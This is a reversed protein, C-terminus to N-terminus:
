QTHRYLRVHRALAVVLPELVDFHDEAGKFLDVRVRQALAPVQLAEGTRERM